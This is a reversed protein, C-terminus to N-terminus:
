GNRRSSYKVGYGLAVLAAIAGAGLGIPSPVWFIVDIHNLEGPILEWHATSGVLVPLLSTEPTLANPPAVRQIGWPVTLDFGLKPAALQSLLGRDSFAPPQLSRLDLDYVLRNKVAFGRNHQTLTLAAPLPMPLQDLGSDVPPASQKSFQDFLSVLQEGNNFPLIIKITQDDISQVKGNLSQAATRVQSLWQQVPEPNLAIAREDIHLTQTLEGQTQSDFRIGVDYHICGTLVWSLGVLVILRQFLLPCRWQAAKEIVRLGKDFSM